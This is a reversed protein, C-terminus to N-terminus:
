EYRLAVMSSACPRAARSIFCAVFGGWRCPLGGPTHITPAIGYLLDFNLRAAGLAQSSGICNLDWCGFPRACIM